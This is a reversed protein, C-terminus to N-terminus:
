LTWTHNEGVLFSSNQPNVGHKLWVRKIGTKLDHIWQRQM